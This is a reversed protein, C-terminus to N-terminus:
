GADSEAGDVEPAADEVTPEVYGPPNPFDAVAGPEWTAPFDRLAQRYASWESKDTPADALMAWDSEALLCDRHIRMREVWWESPVEEPDFPSALEM